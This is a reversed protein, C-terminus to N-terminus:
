HGWKPPSTTAALTLLVVAECIVSFHQMLSFHICPTEM